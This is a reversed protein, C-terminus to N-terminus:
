EKIDKHALWAQGLKMQPETPNALKRVSYLTRHGAVPTIEITMENGNRNIKVHIPKGVLSASLAKTVAALAQRPGTTPVNTADVGLIVDGVVLKGVGPGRVVAVIPAPGNFGTGFLFGNDTYAEDTEVLELGVKNLTDELKMGDPWMVIRDYALGMDAGGFRTLQRQIEDEQFGPKDDRCLNWLAHEVDDLSHVGKTKDRLEIDLCMGALWGLNYYSIRYGNSNGRGANEEDVRMSSENPGIEALASNRRIALINGAISDFYSQDTTWGYRHLLTFAYYDTVGELWWLAGTQPLKTYDFPGLAKSRIRKVNWLHFFEHALVGVARPGVGSALGIETSSLHELGGAGDPADNVSFHWVYHDYPAEGGFFDTEADSVFKCAKKLKERDVLAKPTGRMVIWHKKGRSVYSDVTLEGTSVPNDALFDYTPATYTHTGAGTEVLGTYIPWDKPVHIGLVCKETRRNVEYMYTSPGGWHVAGAVPKSEVDYEITTERAGAVKWTCVKNGAIKWAKGAQYQKQQLDIQTDIALQNGNGDKASLNKPLLFSDSLDYDGPAWNPIQLMAGRETHRLHMKVHLIGDHPRVDIDYRIEASATAVLPIFALLSVAFKVSLCRSALPNLM